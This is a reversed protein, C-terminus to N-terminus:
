GIRHSGLILRNLRTSTLITEPKDHLLQLNWQPRTTFTYIQNYSCIAESIGNSMGRIKVVTLIFVGNCSYSFFNAIEIM